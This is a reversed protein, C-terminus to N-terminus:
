FAEGITIHVAGPFQVFGLNVKIERQAPDVGVAQAGPVLWGVDLRLPGVITRYRLGLGVATRLRRFRFSDGRNVDGFDAFLTLGIDQTLNARLEVSALWRRLGGDNQEYIRTGSPTLDGTDSLFGAPFGRHSTAGGGRLRYRQPGLEQSVEDLAGDNIDGVLMAGLSFRAALVMGLPLPVYARAEPTM